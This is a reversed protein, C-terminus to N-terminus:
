VPDAPDFTPSRKKSSQKIRIPPTLFPRRDNKPFNYTGVQCASPQWTPLTAM